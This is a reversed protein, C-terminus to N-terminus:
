RAVFLKGTQVQVAQVASWKVRYYYLGNALGGADFVATYTGAKQGAQVLTAVERGVADFIKVSVQGDVPLTYGIRTAAAFPNPAAFARFRGPAGGVGQCAEAAPALLALSPAPCPGPLDGHNLHEALASANICLETKGNHCVLVRDSKPGCAVVQAYKITAYDADSTVGQSFGTIYVFGQADVAIAQAIDTSGGPGGYRVAWQQVGSNNYKVTAYDGEASSELVNASTGTVYVNGLADLALANAQDVDQDPGDYRADWQQLGAANYKVTTFDDGFDSDTLNSTGTVYVNGSADVAIDSARDPGTGPHYRRVWQEAGDAAGYKVTAYATGSGSEFSQGTVYVYADDLALAFAQDQSNAASNNYRMTWQVVGATSYKLTAYDGDTGTGNSYGTVYVNGANDVALDNAGDNSGTGDYVRVWQETGAADYKVTAYDSHDASTSFAAGTVYVNGAGDVGIATARDASSGASSYRRVWLENGAADYKITAYDFNFFGLGQSSGTVYVNGAADVAIATAGDSANGTGNYFKVWQQVGAANYKITAYDRTSVSVSSSGTVYVNGAADVAIDNALDAGNGAGNFRQVWHPVVQAHLFSSFSLLFVLFLLKRHFYMSSM